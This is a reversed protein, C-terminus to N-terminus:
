ASESVVAAAVVAKVTKAFHPSMYRQLNFYTLEDGKKLKLLTSLNNDANIRRGNEKDQLNNTRIYANIERTVETRAMKSGKTKGLFGALEDSILTPQVFGSPARNSSSQKRKASAKQSVKLQRASKKELLRFESKLASLLSTVSQLKALFSSFDDTLSSTETAVPSASSIVVNTTAAAVDVAPTAADAAPAVAKKVSVKKASAKKETAPATTASASVEVPKVQTATVAKSEVSQKTAKTM